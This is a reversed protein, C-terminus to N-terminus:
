EGDPASQGRDPIAPKKRKALWVLMAPQLTLNTVMALLLTLSTLYGLSKTGDFQSLCFVAFGAILILSTYIISLGTERITRRVTTDGDEGHQQLDQKYNVLFRITVDVTIGLAVSFILVTSPKLPVNLWGMIGATILLPVINVIISILVIRWSRFLAVMCGFIMAFALLLSDRLSHIIFRSGELFVVSTGTFTTKYHATDFLQLAARRLTDLLLPLRVSGVDAMNVSIRTKQGASDVFATLLKNLPNSSDSQKSRLTTGVSRLAGPETPMAYNASDGGFYAQNAFRVGETLSLARGIEPITRLYEHLSDIKLLTRPATALYKKRADVIIELPMVGGFHQEFFKLDRYVMDSKPLDDVIYGVSKLRLMGAVGLACAALTVGYIWPRHHFTWTTLRDLLRTMWRAEMYSTHRSHPPPLFSYLAPLLILSILFIALLNIGAVLGFENLIASKTFFFVGFGIAATLNTFLTVVGMRGVMEILSRRKDGTRAYESHYKNLFYVCNPIGIVVILPPILGTLLSIKYGCLAITGLSWVVGIGVVLMSSIVALASRFFAALILATLLFSLLIFLRMEAQVKTAMVTRILPLGSYHMVVNHDGAFAAVLDTIAKVVETRKKSQMLDKDIRIAALYAGTGPNHLLNRYFPLSRFTAAERAPLQRAGAGTGHASDTDPTQPHTGDWEAWDQVHFIRTAKLKGTATDRILTVATPIALVNTVGRVTSLRDVLHAYAIFFGPQFFDPSQLGVVMVNGDDGFLRRAEQYEEYKPNDTPIARTFEYSIHVQSAYYGMIATAAALLLLLLARYKLIFRAIAHWM